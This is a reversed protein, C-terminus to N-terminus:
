RCVLIPAIEPLIGRKDVIIVIVNVTTPLGRPGQSVSPRPEPVPMARLQELHRLREVEKNLADNEATIKKTDAEASQQALELKHIKELLENKWADDSRVTTSRARKKESKQGKKKFESAQQRSQNPQIDQQQQPKQLGHEIKAVREELSDSRSDPSRTVQRNMRLRRQRVANRFVELRQAYKLASDLTQPEKERVKLELDPDDFACIFHEKALRESMTSRDGPYALMMLRRVDQALERLSENPKRSRCQLEAQYKEEMDLSGFRSRLRAVLQKYSMEETGWLMQAAVGNLSWRLYMLKETSDWHNFQACNNFQALFTEFCSTGDFKEPKMYGRSNDKKHHRSRCNDSSPSRRDRIRGNIRRDNRESRIDGKRGHQACKMESSSHNEDSSDDEFQDFTPEDAYTVKGKGNRISRRRMVLAEDEETDSNSPFEIFKDCRRHRALTRPNYNDSNRDTPPSYRVSDKKSVLSRNRVKDTQLARSPKDNQKLEMEAGKASDHNDVSFEGLVARKRTKLMTQLPQDRTSGLTQSVSRSDGYSKRQMMESQKTKHKKPIRTEETAMDEVETVCSHYQSDVGLAARPHRKKIAIESDCQQRDSDDSNHPMDITSGHTRQVELYETDSTKLMQNKM